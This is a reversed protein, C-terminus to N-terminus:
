LYCFKRGRRGRERGCVCEDTFGSVTPLLNQSNKTSPQLVFICHEEERKNVSDLLSGLTHGLCIYNKGITVVEIFYVVLM